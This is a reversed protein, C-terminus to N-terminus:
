INVVGDSFCIMIKDTKLILFNSLGNTQMDFYMYTSIVLM